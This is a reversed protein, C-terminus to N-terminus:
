SGFLKKYIASFLGIITVYAFTIFGYIYRREGKSTNAEEVCKEIDKKYPCTIAAISEQLLKMDKRIEEKDEKGDKVHAEFNKDFNKICAKMEGMWLYLQRSTVRRERKEIVESEDDEEISM